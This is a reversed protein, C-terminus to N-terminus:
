FLNKLKSQLNIKKNKIGLKERIKDRYWDVTGKSMILVDAIEKSTKGMKILDAIKIENPTLTAYQTNIPIECSRVIEDLNSEIIEIYTHQLKNLSTSKIKDLYPTIQSKLNQIMNGKLDEKTEDKKELLVKLATNLEELSQSQELLAQNKMELSATREKVKNELELNLQKLKRETEKKHTIDRVVSVWGVRVEHKDFLQLVTHETPFINGGKTKMKFNNIHHYGQTDLNPYLEKQFQKLSEENIHLFTTAQGVMEQSSYGFIEEAAPNVKIIRPPMEANLIFLADTQSNFVKELLENTDHLIEKM